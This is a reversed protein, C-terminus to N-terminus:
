LPTAQGSYHYSLFKPGDFYKEDRELFRFGAEAILPSIPRDLSCGALRKFVPTMRRQLRAIKEDPAKGHELFLLRGGPKLIRRMEQLAEEIQGISCLTWTTVITDISNTELPIDEAGSQIVDVPFNAESILEEAKTLLKGSPELGFLHDIDSSYYPLNMGTGFGIELVRGTALPPIQPRYKRIVDNKMGREVVIPLIHNAYFGM